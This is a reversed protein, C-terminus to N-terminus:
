PTLATEFQPVFRAPPEEGGLSPRAGIPPSSGGARESELGAIAPVRDAFWNLRLSNSIVFASSAVMALASFLPTLRGSAALGIGIVNYTFAWCLNQRIIRVTQRALDVSWPLRGLDDSLFCVAASERSLDAGCGMAIGVDSAALAPSDNIGDGVMVVSGHRKQAARVAAVKDEPLQEALVPVGLAEALSEARRRRDGTVVAVRIGRRRCEALAAAAEPRLQERFIFVGRVRGDWGVCSLPSDDGSELAHWLADSFTLGQQALWKPSGLFLPL